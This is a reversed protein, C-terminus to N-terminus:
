GASPLGKGVLAEDGLRGGLDDGLLALAGLLELGLDRREPRLEGVKRLPRQRAGHGCRWRSFGDPAGPPNKKTSKGRVAASSTGYPPRGLLRCSM